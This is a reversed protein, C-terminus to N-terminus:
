KKEDKLKLGGRIDKIKIDMYFFGDPFKKLTRKPIKLTIYDVGTKYTKVDLM